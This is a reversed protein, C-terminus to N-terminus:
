VCNCVSDCSGGRSWIPPLPCVPPLTLAGGAAQRTEVEGLARVTERSLRLKEHNTM